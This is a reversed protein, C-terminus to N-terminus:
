SAPPTYFGRMQAKLYVEVAQRVLSAAAEPYVLYFTRLADVQEQFLWAGRAGFAFPRAMGRAAKDIPNIYPKLHEPCAIKLEHINALMIAYFRLNSEVANSDM